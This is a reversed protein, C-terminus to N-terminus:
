ETTHTATLHVSIHNFNAIRSVRNDAKPLRFWPGAYEGIGTLRAPSPSAKHQLAVASTSLLFFLLPRLFM